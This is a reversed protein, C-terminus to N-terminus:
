KSNYQNKFNDYHIEYHVYMAHTQHLTARVTIFRLTAPPAQPTGQAQCETTIPEFHSENKIRFARYRGIISSEQSFRICFM